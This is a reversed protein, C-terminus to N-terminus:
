AVLELPLPFDPENMLCGPHSEMYPRLQDTEWKAWPEPVPAVQELGTSNDREVFGLVEVLPHGFRTRRAPDNKAKAAWFFPVAFEVGEQFYTGGYSSNANGRVMAMPTQWWDFTERTHGKHPIFM